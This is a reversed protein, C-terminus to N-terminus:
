PRLTRYFRQQPAPTTPDIFTFTGTASTNTSLSVWSTLNTSAQVVYVANPQGTVTLQFYGGSFTGGLSAPVYVTTTAQASNNAPVLDEENAAVNVANLLSGAVSPMTVIIVNASAGAALSGLNCTLLGASPPTHSGQSLSASVFQANTPFANNLVVGTATDPGLNAVTITNTLTSGLSLSAPVSLGVALDVVPGVTVITSLNLSWGNAINGADGPKDDFVYLSWAGNPNNWTMGSLTSYYQSAPATGPLAIPGEYSSPKYTGNTILGYNPLSVAAADDFVLNVNTIAYGGGTHSMVLVNSGSPSVLLVNVDHPFTHTLGNLGLTVKSVRGSVGSVNITSPYPTGIGHDPITIAASNSFNTAAPAGFAFAIAPLTNTAGPREDQLQLTAVTAGGLDTAATFTFSRAASPGGYILSGYYQPGSPSTVGGSPLLSAKLNVTDLSGINALALSLTVTEGPDISGNVPGSEYTLVAGANVIQVAPRVVTAVYTASNNASIPDYSASSLFVANTMLGITSNTLVITVTASANSALDGLACTVAGNNGTITGVTSSSSAAIFGVGPPLPETLVASLATGPGRNTIVVTNTLSFGVVVPDPAVAQALGLDAVPRNVTTVVSVTSNVPNLDNELAAVNAVSTVTGNTVGQPIATTTVTVVYTVTAIAGVNLTGLNVIVSAPTTLVIGQSAGASVLMVGAPLINTFAVFTATNPGGNTITFTYTLTGGVLGPSPAAVATLGLDALQNVPTISSLTLSWGNSIAGTDGPYDDFVFLSWSGNPNSGNLASLTVPYPGAPANTPFTPIPFQDTYAAPQWVGSALQGTEPLPGAPASDDFTLNLGATSQDQDGAHSMVLTKAGSPAVLLVNVDSPFSHNFNSLTVTVKGLVGTFNSVNISSPYPTAPGSGDPYPPDPLAPEPILIINTNASVQTVPLAFTFSVPPYTNTGDQLQLTPSITGGNAGTATFTFNSGVPFSSPLLSGYTQPSNPPVPIVGPTALLTAVLNSTSVNGANRLYFVVTVTEGPDIAGNIPGSEYTLVAGAPVISIFPAAVITTTTATNNAPNPDAQAALVTATTTLTGNTTTAVVITITARAGNTLTGLACILTSNSISITGQTTNTSLVTATAPLLDNLSVGTATSPGQNTVDISYTVNSGAVVPSPFGTLSLALDAAPGVVTSITATNNATIPDLEQGGATATATITGEATPTVLITATASAGSALSPLSWIIVNGAYLATGRSFTASLIPASAPLVNTVIIVTAPNPGNNTLSVTYTLTSDILVPSPAAAIGVALDATAPNVQTQATASNNLANPDPQESTVTATSFLQGVVNPQVIVTLTATTQPNMPGLNFTVLGGQQAYTGQSPFASVFTVTNPLLHSVVVNTASSPGLNTVSITYTLNNGAIIPNPQATMGLAMDAGPCQGGGDVCLTPTILLSWCQIAANDFQGQDSARLRWIGNVNTGSKGAFRSLPQAPQFAGVFPAAGSAIPTLAADDFTTRLSDPSCAVGYNQGNLGNNASLINTTGDPAVLELRLFYDALDTIYMSVTVKNVTFNVNSVLVTSNTTGPSPIQVPFYNDFRLTNGPLGTPLSFLNTSILQDSKVVLICDIPTGCIFSPATSIQFPVLNTASGGAPIDPYASTSQAIGVGPTTTSLYARVGTVAVNGLDTLILDLSNCEDFEIIGNGNGGYVVNTAVILRPRPTAALALDPMVIGFGSDRDWGAAMIDLATTTLLTRAEESTLLPNYSKLLGAIAAAHPAAASTGFFPAFGPVSTTVGDAATVDPKQLVRGGTSSFNGPTIPSGDPNYFIQRPGDSSFYEVVNNLNFPNPYPGTPAGPGWAGAAPTAAVGFASAAANHGRTSGQTGIALRGRNSAIHLFRNTGSALVVVVREDINTPFAYEFPDQSGNQVTISSGVVNAGTPDLIYLDYDNSSAGLPDSWFLTVPGEGLQTLTDYTNTGFSHVFGGKGDVPPVVAGGNVFDGEWTGSNTSDLNGSNAASSFYWAGAATVSNVAKSIIGDQFPSEDLYSIDDVIIDCGAARLALINQAFQAESPDASAFYLAAGPAMAHVIELMATGEGTGPVGSQGPLVTVPGLDGLAQVQALFDVSDSLVGIKVGTGDVAFTTRAVDDRHTVVGEPDSNNHLAKVAPRIFTLDALGAITETQSLPIWARIANFQPFSSIQKGGFRQIQQLLNSTVNARIDVEIMGNTDARAMVRLFPVAGKAILQGRSRQLAFILQSDMKQQVPTFSDKEAQLAQIQQLASESIAAALAGSVAAILVALASWRRIICAWANGRGLPPKNSSKM